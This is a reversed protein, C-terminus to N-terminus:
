DFCRPKYPAEIASGREIRKQLAKPAVRRSEAAERLLM